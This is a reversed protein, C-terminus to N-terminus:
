KLLAGVLRAVYEVNGLLKDDDFISWDRSDVALVGLFIDDEDYLPIGLIGQLQQTAKIKEEEVLGWEYRLQTDSILNLDVIMPEEVNWVRGVVGEIKGFKFRLEHADFDGSSEYMYLMNTAIDIRFVCARIITRYDTNDRLCNLISKIISKNSAEMYKTLKNKLEKQTRYETYAVVWACSAIGVICLSYRLLDHEIIEGALADFFIGIAYSSTTLFIVLFSHKNM